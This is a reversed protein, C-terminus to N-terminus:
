LCRSESLAHLAMATVSAYATSPPNITGDGFADLEWTAGWGTLLQSDRLREVMEQATADDRRATAAMLALAHTLPYDNAADGLVPDPVDTLVADRIAEYTPEVPSIAGIRSVAFASLAAVGIILLHAPTGTM